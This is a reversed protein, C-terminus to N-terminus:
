GTFYCAALRRGRPLGCSGLPWWEVRCRCHQAQELRAQKSGRVGRGVARAGGAATPGRQGGQGRTRSSPSSYGIRGPVGGARGRVGAGEEEVQEDEREPAAQRQPAGAGQRQRHDQLAQCGGAPWLARLVTYLSPCDARFQSALPAQLARGGGALSVPCCLRPHRQEPHQAHQSPLARLREGAQRSERVVARGWGARRQGGRGEGRGQM